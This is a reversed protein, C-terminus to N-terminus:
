MSTYDRFFKLMERFDRFFNLDMSLNIGEKGTCSNCLALSSYKSKRAWFRMVQM